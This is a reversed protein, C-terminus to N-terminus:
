NARVGGVRCGDNRGGDSQAEHRERRAPHGISAIQTAREATRRNGAAGRAIERDGAAGAAHGGIGLRIRHIDGDHGAPGSPKRVTHGAPWPWGSAEVSLERSPRTLDFAAITGAPVPPAMLTKALLVVFTMRSMLPYKTGALSGVASANKGMAGQRTASVRLAAAGNPPGVDSGAPLDARKGIREDAHLMGTEACAYESLIM